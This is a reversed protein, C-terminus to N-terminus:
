GHHDGLGKSDHLSDKYWWVRCHYVALYFLLALYLSNQLSWLPGSNHLKCRFHHVPLTLDHKAGKECLTTFKM